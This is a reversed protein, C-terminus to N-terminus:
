VATRPPPAELFVLASRQREQTVLTREVAEWTFAPATLVESAFCATQCILACSVSCAKDNQCCPDAPREQSGSPAMSMTASDAMGCAPAAAFAALPSLMLSIVALLALLSKM